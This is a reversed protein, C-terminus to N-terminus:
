VDSVLLNSNSTDILNDLTQETSATQLLNKVNDYEASSAFHQVLNAFTPRNDPTESWCRLMLSYIDNPCRAPQPLRAGQAVVETAEAGSMDGYPQTGFSYTEWLTVGYSWVDSAHSFMGCNISEPAYWKVPWRGGKSASYFSEGAGLVRSLGFDSIKAQYRTALLINRAALDRHVFNRQELYLMGDAIQGAWLPFEFQPSITHPHDLLYDLLSGLAVLEQVMMLPPGKCLAILRVINPNRLEMMVRAERLFEERNSEIQDDRLTKIAVPISNGNSQRLSGRYVFGFEGEGLTDYLELEEKTVIGVRKPVDKSSSSVSENPSPSRRLNRNPLPPPSLTQRSITKFAFNDDVVPQPPKIPRQLEAPLGDAHNMYHGVVHELSELYPGYDVYYYQGRKCIEFHFVRGTYLVSLAYFGPKSASRRVLFFNDENYKASGEKLRRETEQRSIPGHYWDEKRTFPFPPKYSELRRACQYFGNKRALDAPTQDEKTRSLPTVSMAMMIKVCDLHGRSAAEHLPVMGTLRHRIQPSAKFELLTKLCEHHNHICAYHLPTLDADDKVNVNGGGQILLKLIMNNGLFAALHIATQGIENKADISRYSGGRLLESVVTLNGEKTARHLLNCRGHCRTDAPPLDKKCPRNLPGFISSGEKQCLTILADLGHVIYGDEISFFADAGHRNIQYHRPEGQHRVSLIFAGDVTPSERVLFLGESDDENTLLAEAEQRNIKGHFWRLDQDTEDRSPRRSMTNFNM